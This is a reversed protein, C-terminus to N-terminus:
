GIISATESLSPSYSPSQSQGKLMEKELVDFHKGTRAFEEACARNRGGLCTTILDAVGASEELFTQEKSSPFFELCFKKMEMLGIRM